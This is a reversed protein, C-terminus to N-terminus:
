KESMLKDGKAWNTKEVDRIIIQVNEKPVGVSEFAQNIGLVLKKKKEADRGVLWDVQVVPM